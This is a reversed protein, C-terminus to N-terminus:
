SFKVEQWNGTADTIFTQNNDTAVITAHEKNALSVYDECFVKVVEKVGEIETLVTIPTTPKYGLGMNSSGNGSCLVTGNELVFFSNYYGICLDTVSSLSPHVLPNTVPNKHGLGFEYNGNTGFVVVKKQDNLFVSNGGVKGTVINSLNNNITFTNIVTANYGYYGTIYVKGAKTRFAHASEGILFDSFDTISSASNCQTFLTVRHTQSTSISFTGLGLNNYYNNGAVYVKNQKNKVFSCGNSVHVKEADSISSVNFWTKQEKQDAIGFEGYTNLGKVYLKSNSIVVASGKSWSVCSVNTMEKDLVWKYGDRYFLDGNATSLYDTSLYTIKSSAGRGGSSMIHRVVM